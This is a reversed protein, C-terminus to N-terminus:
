LAPGWRDTGSPAWSCMDVQHTRINGPDVEVFGDEDPSRNKLIATLAEDLFKKERSVNEAAIDKNGAGIILWQPLQTKDFPAFDVHKAVSLNMFIGQVAYDVDSAAFTVAGTALEFRMSQHVADIWSKPIYFTTEGVIARQVDSACAAGFLAGVTGSITAGALLYQLTKRRSVTAGTEHEKSQSRSSSRGLLVDKSQM